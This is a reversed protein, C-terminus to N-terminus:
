GNLQKQIFYWFPSLSMIGKKKKISSMIKRAFIIVQLVRCFANVGIRELREKKEIAKEGKIYLHTIFYTLYTQSHIPFPQFFFIM